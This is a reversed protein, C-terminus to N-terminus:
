TVESVAVRYLRNNPRAFAQLNVKLGKYLYDHKIEIDDSVWDYTDGNLAFQVHATEWGMNLTLISDRIIVTALGEVRRGKTTTTDRKMEVLRDRVM